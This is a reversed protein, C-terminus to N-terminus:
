PSRRELRVLSASSPGGGLGILCVPNLSVDLRTAPGSGVVVGSVSLPEHGPASFELTYTGPRLVRHYDGVAPDTPVPWDVELCRVTAALPVCSGAERVVGRVGRLAWQFTATIAPINVAVIGDIQPAPPRFSNSLEITWDIDGREGYSWDNTDGNTQYWDWGNIIPYGTPGSYLNSLDIIMPEDPTPQPCCNWIYNVYQAGSHFSHSIAFNNSLGNDRVAQTEPESFPFPGAYPELNHDWLYSYNRNLDVNHANHRTGNTGTMRGDPNVLPAIWIELNDVLDTAVPDIGYGDALWQAYGLPVEVSIWENGHHCGLLRVEPEDEELDPNDSIKLATISRGQVSTGLLVRRIFSSHNDALAQLADETQQYDHYTARAAASPAAEGPLVEVAFGLAALRKFAEPDLVLAEVTDRHRDLIALGAAVLTPLDARGVGSIRVRIEDSVPVPGASTACFAVLALGLM